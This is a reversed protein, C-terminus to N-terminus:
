WRDEDEAVDYDVDGTAKAGGESGTGGEGMLVDSDVGGKTQQQQAATAAPPAAAAAQPTAVWSMEVKGLGPIEPGGNM